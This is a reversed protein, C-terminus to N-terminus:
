GKFEKNWFDLIGGREKQMFAYDLPRLKTRDHETFGIERALDDPLVADRVTPLYGLKESFAIQAQPDLLANLYKWAADKAKANKPVGAEFVLPISGEDPVSWAIPFGGGKKWMFARALWMTSIWVEESRLGASLAENSAFVKPENKKLELLLRKGESMDDSKGNGAINAAAVNWSYLSDSFGVRGKYQPDFLDAYGKPPTKIKDPNYVLVLASFIHPVCYQKRFLPVVEALRPVDAEPVTELVGQQDLIYGDVDNICAVDMSSQPAGKGAILKTRRPDNNGIEQSVSIGLPKMLREDIESQLLAGYDGGWTGVVLETSPQGLAGKPLATSGALAASGALAHRRTMSM